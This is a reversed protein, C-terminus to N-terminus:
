RSRRDHGVILSSKLPPLWRREATRPGAQVSRAIPGSPAPKHTGIRPERVRAAPRPSPPTRTLLARQLRRLPRLGVGARLVAQTIQPPRPKDRAPPCMSSQCPAARARTERRSTGGRQKGAPIRAAAPSARRARPCSPQFGAISVRESRPGPAPGTRPSASCCLPARPLPWSRSHSRPQWPSCGYGAGALLVWRRVMRMNTRPRAEISSTWRGRSRPQASAGSTRQPSTRRVAHVPLKVLDASAGGVPVDARNTKPRRGVPRTPLKPRRM